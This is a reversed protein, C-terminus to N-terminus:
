KRSEGERDRARRERGGKTEAERKRRVRTSINRERFTCLLQTLKKVLHQGNVYYGLDGLGHIEANRPSTHLSIGM